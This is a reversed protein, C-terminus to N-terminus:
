AVRLALDIALLEGKLMSQAEGYNFALKLVDGTSDRFIAAIAELFQISIRVGYWIWSTYLLVSLNM